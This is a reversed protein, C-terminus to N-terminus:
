DLVIRAALGGFAVASVRNMLRSERRLREAVLGALGGYLCDFILGILAVGAGFILFQAWAPGVAPDVFQPLFAVMFVIVKPNMLNTALARAFARAMRSRGLRGGLDDGATWSSWALWVLYAAGIWRVADYAGPAGLILASLGAAALIAHVMMGVASGVGAAVGAWAGGRLGCAICFMMGPGPTIMLVVSAIVFAVGTWPDISMLTEFM